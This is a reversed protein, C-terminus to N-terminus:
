APPDLDKRLHFVTTQDTMLEPGGVIRYGHRQWFRIAHPNNVQVGALIATIQKEKQIECEVAEVVADGIGKKRFAAAIMLLSLCAHRPEGEFNGPVYDIVGIMNGDNIYIGCFVGGMEHSIELDKRVMDMSATSVPGLALFDECQRYVDLIVDADAETVPRIVLSHAPITILSM